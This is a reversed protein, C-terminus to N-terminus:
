VCSHFRDGICDMTIRRRPSLCTSLRAAVLGRSQCGTRISAFSYRGTTGVSVECRRFSISHVLLTRVGPAMSASCFIWASLTAVEHRIVLRRARQIRTASILTEIWLADTATSCLTPFYIGCLLILRAL